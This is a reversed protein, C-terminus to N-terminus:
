GIAASVAILGLIVAILLGINVGIKKLTKVDEVEEFVM